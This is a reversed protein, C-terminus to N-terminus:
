VPPESAHHDGLHGFVSQAWDATFRIVTADGVAIKVFARTPAVLRIDWRMNQSKKDLPLKFWGTQAATTEGHESVVRSAQVLWQLGKRADTFLNRSV